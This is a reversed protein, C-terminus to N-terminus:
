LLKSILDGGLKKMQLDKAGQILNQLLPSEAEGDMIEQFKSRLNAYTETPYFHWWKCNGGSYRIFMNRSWLVNNCDEYIGSGHWCTKSDDFENPELNLEKWLKNDKPLSCIGSKLIAHSLIHQDIDWTYSEKFSMKTGYEEIMKPLGNGLRGKEPQDMSLDYELINRWVSARIGIFPMMFTSGTGLTFAYRYLWIQRGPLLLPKYTDPTMVFADVDATVLIDDDQIFPLAFALLRIMQSKLVCKIDPGTPVLFVVAGYSELKKKYEKLEDSIEPESYVIQMIVKAPTIKMWLQSSLPAAEKYPFNEKGHVQANASWCLGMTIWTRPGESNEFTIDKISSVDHQEVNEVLSHMDLLSLSPKPAASSQHSDTELAIQDMKYICFICTLILLLGKWGLKKRHEM